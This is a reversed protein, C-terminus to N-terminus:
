IFYIKHVFLYYIFMARGTYQNKIKTIKKEEKVILNVDPTRIYNVRM